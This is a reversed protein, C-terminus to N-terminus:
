YKKLKTVTVKCLLVKGNVKAVITTTGVGRGIITGDAKVTAIRNNYSSYKVSQTAGYVDLSFSDYQEITISSRNLALVIVECETEVGSDAICYIVTNGQGKATVQGNSNVTAVSTDGSLWEYGDTSKSPKLRATLIQTQGPLLTISKSNIVVGTAPTSQKVTVKCTGVIKNEDTSTAYIYAIGAKVGIVNGNFDVTAVSDNSSTWEIDKISASHPTVTATITVGEGEMITMSNPEVSISTVPNICTLTYTDFLGSGDAATATITATGIGVGSVKGKNDVTLIGNNSSSWIVGRNSATESLVTASFSKSSGLNIYKGSGKITISSVFEGVDIACSAILGREVTTVIIVCSGGAVGTVVGNEDVTAVATDSSIYTVKKNDADIPSVTPIIVFKAGKLISAYSANLTIGTVPETVTLVCRAAVGSDASTAIINCTGPSITTVKGWADVKAIDTDSSSWVVEKNLANDPGVTAHLWFETGKRVTVTTSNLTVSTAQQYVVINCVATVGSDVSQVLIAASGAAVATILGNKDVKAVNTNSSTWTVEKNTATTPLVEASIRFTDGIKLTLDTYDLNVETVPELIYFECTAILNGNFGTDVTKAIITAKGPAVFTVLGNENVTAVSSNSTSWTVDKNVGDGAPTITYSLQYSGTAMSTEVSTHSLVIGTVPQRVHIRCSSVKIGDTTIVSITVDGGKLANVVGDNGVTAISTDSSVWTVAMNDPLDPTFRVILPYSSGKNIELESPYIEVDQVPEKVSVECYAYKKVGGIDQVATIKATGKKLGTIKASFQDTTSVTINAVSDDSSLWTVNAANDTVLATLTFDEGINLIHESENLAFSDIVIVTITSTQVGEGPFLENSDLTATIKCTGNARGTLIGDTDVYAITRDSSSWNVGNSPTNVELQYTNGVAVVVDQSTIGFNVRVQIYSGNEDTEDPYVYINTVGANKGTVNGLSDVSAITPDDSVWRVSTASAANTNLLLSHQENTGIRVMSTDKYYAKVIVKFSDSQGDPTKATITSTGAAVAKISGQNSYTTGPDISVVDPNSSTWTLNSEISEYNTWYTSSDGEIFVVPETPCDNIAFKVQIIRSATAVVKNDDDYYSATITTRGAGSAVVKVTSGVGDGSDTTLSIINSDATSWRIKNSDVPVGDIDGTAGASWTEMYDKDWTGSVTNYITIKVSSAFAITVGVITAISLAAVTVVPKWHKLLFTKVKTFIKKM